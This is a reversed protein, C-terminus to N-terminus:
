YMVETGNTITYQDNNIHSLTCYFWKPGYSHIENLSDHDHVFTM